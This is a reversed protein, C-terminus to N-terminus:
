SKRFCKLTFIKSSFLFFAELLSNCFLDVGAVPFNKGTFPWMNKSISQYWRWTNISMKSSPYVGIYYDIEKYFDLFLNQM